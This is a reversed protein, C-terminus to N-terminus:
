LIYYGKHGEIFTIQGETKQTLGSKIREV